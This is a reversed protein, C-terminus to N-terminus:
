DSGVALQELLWQNVREPVREPIWHDVGEAVEFRYPGTVYEATADAAERGFVPDETSWVYLTPVQVVPRPAPTSSGGGSSAGGSASGGGGSSAGFSAAYWSLAARIADPKGLVSLYEAVADDPLGTWIRRLTKADDALFRQPADPAAFDAFYASRAGQDTTTDARAAALAAVHPTSLVTLTRVRDPHGIAVVWAVAGGWDHGVLHFRRAGLADAMGLVDGVLSGMAYAAVDTPRAHPSYGRQDPAVVRYGAVALAQLQSRWEYSSEPFGHLLLVLEGDEPGAARADFTLDGVPIRIREIPVASVTEGGGVSWGGVVFATAMALGWVSRSIRRM